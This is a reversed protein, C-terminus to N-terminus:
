ISLLLYYATLVGAVQQDTFIFVLPDGRLGARQYLMCLDAKLDAMGYNATLKIQPTATVCLPSSTVHSTMCMTHDGM